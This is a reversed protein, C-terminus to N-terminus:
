IILLKEFCNKVLFLYKKTTIIPIQKGFHRTKKSCSNWVRPFTFFNKKRPSRGQFLIKKVKGQTQFEQELFVAMKPIMLEISKHPNPCIGCLTGLNENWFLYLFLIMSIIKLNRSDKCIKLTLFHKFNYGSM